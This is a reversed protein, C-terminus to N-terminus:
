PTPEKDTWDCDIGVGAGYDPSKTVICPITGDPTHIEYYHAETFGLDTTDVYGVASRPAPNTLSDITIGLGVLIASILAFTGLAM